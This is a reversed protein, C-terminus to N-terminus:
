AFSEGGSAIVVGRFLGERRILELTARLEELVARTLRPYGEGPALGIVAVCDHTYLDM